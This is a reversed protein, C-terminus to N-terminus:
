GSPRQALGMVYMESMKLNIKFAPLSLFKVDVLKSELCGCTCPSPYAMGLLQSNVLVGHFELLAIPCLVARFAQELINLPPLHKAWCCHHQNPPGRGVISHKPGTRSSTCIRYSLWSCAPPQTRTVPMHSSRAGLELLGSWLVCRPPLDACFVGGAM